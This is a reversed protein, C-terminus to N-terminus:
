DIREGQGGDGQSRVDRLRGTRDLVHNMAQLLASSNLGRLRTLSVASLDILSSEIGPDTDAFKV